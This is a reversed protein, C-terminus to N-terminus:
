RKMMKLMRKNIEPSVTYFNVSMFSNDEYYTSNERRNQDTLNYYASVLADINYNVNSFINFFVRKSIEGKERKTKVTVLLKELYNYIDTVRKGELLELEYFATKLSFLLLQKQPSYSNLIEKKQEKLEKKWKNIKAKKSYDLTEFLANNEKDDFIRSLMINSIINANLISKDYKDKNRLYFVKIASIDDEKYNDPDHNLTHAISNTLFINEEDSFESSDVDTIADVLYAEKKVFFHFEDKSFPFGESKVFDKYLRNLCKKLEEVKKKNLQYRIKEDETLKNILERTEVIRSKIDIYNDYYFKFEERNYQM